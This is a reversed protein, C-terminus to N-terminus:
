LSFLLRRTNRETIVQKEKGGYMDSRRIAKNIHGNTQPQEEAGGVLDYATDLHPFRTHQIWVM